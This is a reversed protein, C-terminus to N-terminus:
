SLTYILNSEKGIFMRYQMPLQECLRSSVDEAQVVGRSYLFVQLENRAFRLSWDILRYM